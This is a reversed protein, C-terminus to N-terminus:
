NEGPSIFAGEKRKSIFIGVRMDPKAWNGCSGLGSGGQVPGEDRRTGERGEEGAGGPVM